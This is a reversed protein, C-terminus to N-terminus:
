VFFPFFVVRPKKNRPRHYVHARFKEGQVARLFWERDLEPMLQLPIDKVPYWCPTMTETERPSDKFYSTHFVHLELDPVDAVIYSVIVAVRELKRPNLLIGAENHAARVLCQALTENKQQKAGPGSLSSGGVEAEARKVGLLVQNWRTIIGFTAIEV